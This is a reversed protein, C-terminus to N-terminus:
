NAGRGRDNWWSRFVDVIRSATEGDWLEPIRGKSAGDSLAESAAREIKARDTGALRNTGETITVPRETNERITVCPIRLYTTEEQLGGSDTLVLRSQSYLNLFDLYGLPPVLRVDGTERLGSYGDLRRLRAETRPHCPFVIPTKTAVQHIASMIRLLADPEDVNSPRHLTLVGFGRPELSLSELVRSDKARELNGVLSDIMINGV